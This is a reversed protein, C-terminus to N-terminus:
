ELKSIKYLVPGSPTSVEVTEGLSRSVLAKGVPSEVSLKGKSPDAENTNVLLYRTESRTEKHRITVRSGLTVKGRKLTKKDVKELLTARRLTNEIERIRAEIHGQQERAVDLPSNESVDKDAAAHRIEKSVRIRAQKLETLQEQMVLFHEETLQLSPLSNVKIGRARSTKVSRRIRAHKSLDSATLGSRYLHSLFMKLITLRHVRDDGIGELTTCFGEIESPTLKGVDRERGCWRIFRNLEAQAAQGGTGKVMKLYETLINSLAVSTRQTM